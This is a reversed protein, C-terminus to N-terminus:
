PSCGAAPCSFRVKAGSLVWPPGEAPPTAGTSSYLAHVGLIYRYGVKVVPKPKLPQTLFYKLDCTGHSGTAEPQLDAYASTDPKYAGFYFKALPDSFGCDYYYFTTSVITAGVPLDVPAELYVAPPATGAPVHTYVGGGTGAAFQAFVRFDLPHFETGVVTRTYVTAGAADAQASRLAVGTMAVAALVAAL